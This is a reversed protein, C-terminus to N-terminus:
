AFPQSYVSGSRSGCPGQQMRVGVWRVVPVSANAKPKDSLVLLDESVRLHALGTDSRPQTEGYSSCKNSGRCPHFKKDASKSCLLSPYDDLSSTLCFYYCFKQTIQGSGIQPNPCSNKFPQGACLLSYRLHYLCLLVFPM